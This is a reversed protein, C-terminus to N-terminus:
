RSVLEFTFLLLMGTGVFLLLETQTNQLRRKEMQDLRGVLNNMREIIEDRENKSLSQEDRPKVPVPAPTEVQEISAWGPRAGIATPLKPAGFATYTTETMPKWRDSLNPDPLLSGMAKEIGKTDFTQTFDPELRYNPDDGKQSSYSSFGEEDDLGKGSYSPFVSTSETPKPVKPLANQFSEKPVDEMKSFLRDPDPGDDAELAALAPGKCRKAKKKAAKREERTPVNDTGGVYPGLKGINPFANELSCLEAM